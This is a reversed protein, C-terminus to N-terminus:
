AEKLAEELEAFHVPVTGVKAVVVGAARNALEAAQVPTAGSVLALTFTATVTDGAGSVDVGAAISCDEREKVFNQVAAGMKGNCGCLIIKVM